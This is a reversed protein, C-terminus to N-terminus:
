SGRSSKQKLKAAMMEGWELFSVLFVQLKGYEEKQAMVKKKKLVSKGWFVNFKM